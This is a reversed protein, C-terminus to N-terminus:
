IWVPQLRRTASPRMQDPFGRSKFAVIQKHINPTRELRNTEEATWGSDVKRPEEQLYGEKM